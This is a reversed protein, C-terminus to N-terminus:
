PFQAITRHMGYIQAVANRRLPDTCVANRRLPDTCVAIRRLPGYLLSHKSTNKFDNDSQKPKFINSFTM